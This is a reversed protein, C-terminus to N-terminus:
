TWFYCPHLLFWPCMGYKGQNHSCSCKSWWNQLGGWWDLSFRQRGGMCSLRYCHKVRSGACTVLSLNLMDFLDFNCSLPDYMQVSIRCELLHWVSLTYINIIDWSFHVFSYYCRYILYPHSIFDLHSIRLAFRLILHIIFFYRHTEIVVWPSIANYYVM